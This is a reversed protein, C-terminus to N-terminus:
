VLKRIKARMEPVTQGSRDFIEMDTSGLRELAPVWMDKQKDSLHKEPNRLKARNFGGTSGIMRTMLSSASMELSFVIPLHGLWGAQKAWHLLVDTKGMSPRAAAITMEADRFGGTLADLDRLGTTVGREEDLPTWPAEYVSGLLASLSNRDG